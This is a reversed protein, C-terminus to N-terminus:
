LPPPRLFTVFGSNVTASYSKPTVFLPSIPYFLISKTM